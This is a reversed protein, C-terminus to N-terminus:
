QNRGSSSSPSWTACPITPGTTGGLTCYTRYPTLDREYRTGLLLLFPPRVKDTHRNRNSVAGPGTGDLARVRELVKAPDVDEHHLIWGALYGPGDPDPLYRGIRVKEDYPRVKWQGRRAASRYSFRHRLITGGELEPPIADANQTFDSHSMTSYLSIMQGWLLSGSSVTFSSTSPDPLFTGDSCRMSHVQIYPSSIVSSDTSTNGAGWITPNPLWAARKLEDLRYREDNAQDEETLWPRAAYYGEKISAHLQQRGESPRWEDVVRRAQRIVSAVKSEVEDPKLLRIALNQFDQKTTWDEWQTVFVSIDRLQDHGGAKNREIQRIRPLLNLLEYTLDWHAQDSLDSQRRKERLEEARQVSTRLEDDDPWSLGKKEQQRALYACAFTACRWVRLNSELQSSPQSAIGFRHWFSDLRNWYGVFQCYPTRFEEQLFTTGVIRRLAAAKTELVLHLVPADPKTIEATAGNDGPHLADLDFQHVEALTTSWPLPRNNWLTEYDRNQPFITFQGQYKKPIAFEQEVREVLQLLTADGALPESFVYRGLGERPNVRETKPSTKYDPKERPPPPPEVLPALKWSSDPFDLFLDPLLVRAILPDHNLFVHVTFHSPEESAAM